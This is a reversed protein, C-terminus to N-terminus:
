REPAQAQHGPVHTVDSPVSTEQSRIAVAEAAAQEDHMFEPALREGDRHPQGTRVHAQNRDCVRMWTHVAACGVGDSAHDLAKAIARDVIDDVVRARRAIQPCALQAQAARLTHDDPMPQVGRIKRHRGVVRRLSGPQHIEHADRLEIRPLPLQPQEPCPTGRQVAAERVRSQDQHAAPGIVVFSHTQRAIEAYPRRHDKETAPRVAGTIEVPGVHADKQRGFRFREAEHQDLGHAAPPRDQGAVETSDPLDHYM